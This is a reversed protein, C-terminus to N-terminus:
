RLREEMGRNQHKKNERGTHNSVLITKAASVSSRCDEGRAARIYLLLTPGETRGQRSTGLCLPPLGLSPCRFGSCFIEEM